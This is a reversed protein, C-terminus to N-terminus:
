LYTAVNSDFTVDLIEAGVWLQAAELKRYDFTFMRGIPSPTHIYLMM